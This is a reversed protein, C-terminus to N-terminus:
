SIKTGANSDQLIDLCQILAKRVMSEVLMRRYEASGRVDSIPNCDNVAAAAATKILETTIVKGQLLDEASHARVATAAVSGLGIRVDATGNRNLTVRASVSCLSIEMAKRRGAKLFVTATNPSVEPIQISTLLEGQELNVKRPGLLFEQLPLSRAGKPGKLNVMADLVLLVPPTDAAPSANCLNGGITGLNRVQVGGVTSCAQKLAQLSETILPSKEIERHTVQAGIELNGTANKYIGTLQQVGNLSIVHKPDVKFRTLLVMLDTGGALLKADDGYQLLLGIVEQVTKPEHYVFSM